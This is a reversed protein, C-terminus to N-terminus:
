LFLFYAVKLLNHMYDKCEAVEEDFDGNDNNLAPYFEIIGAFSEEVRKQARQTRRVSESCLCYLNTDHEEISVFKDKIVNTLAQRTLKNM